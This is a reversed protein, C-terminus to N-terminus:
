TSVEALRDLKIANLARAQMLVYTFDHEGVCDWDHEGVCDWDHERVCDWDHEGACDWDHCLELRAGRRLRLVARDDRICDWFM